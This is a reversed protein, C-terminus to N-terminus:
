NLLNFSSEETSSDGGFPPVPTVTDDLEGGLMEADYLKKDHWIILDVLYQNQVRDNGKRDNLRLAFFAYIYDDKIDMIPITFAEFLGYVNSIQTKLWQDWVLQWQLIQEKGVFHRDSSNPNTRAETFNNLQDMNLQNLDSMFIYETIKEGHKHFAEKTDMVNNILFMKLEGEIVGPYVHISKLLPEVSNSTNTDTLLIEKPVKFMSGQALLDAVIDYYDLNQKWEQIASKITLLKM